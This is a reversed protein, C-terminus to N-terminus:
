AARRSGTPVLPGFVDQALRVVRVVESVAAPSYGAAQLQAEDAARVAGRAQVAAETFRELAVLRADTPALVPRQPVGQLPGIRSQVIAQEVPALDSERGFLGTERFLAALTRRGLGTASLVNSAPDILVEAVPQSSTPSISNFFSM